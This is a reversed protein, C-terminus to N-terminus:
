KVNDCKSTVVNILKIYTASCKNVNSIIIFRKFVVFHKLLKVVATYDRTKLTFFINHVM